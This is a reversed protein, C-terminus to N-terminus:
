RHMDSLLMGCLATHICSLVHRRIDHLFAMHGVSLRTVRVWAQKDTNECMYQRAVVSSPCELSAICQLFLLLQHCGNIPRPSPLPKVRQVDGVREGRCKRCIDAKTAPADVRVYRVIPQVLLHGTAPVYYRDGRTRAFGYLFYIHCCTRLATHWRVRAYVKLGCYGGCAGSFLHGHVRNLLAAKRRSNDHQVFPGFRM